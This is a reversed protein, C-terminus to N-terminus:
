RAAREVEGAVIAGEASWPRWLRHQRAEVIAIVDAVVAAADPHKVPASLAIPETRGDTEV